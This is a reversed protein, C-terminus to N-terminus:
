FRGGHIDVDCGASLLGDVHWEVPDLFADNIRDM